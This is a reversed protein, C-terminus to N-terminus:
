RWDALFRSDESTPHYRFSVTESQLAHLEAQVAEEEEFTLTNALM